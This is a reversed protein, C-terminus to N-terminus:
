ALVANDRIFEMIKENRVFQKLWPLGYIDEFMTFDSTDFHEIFFNTVELSTIIMGMDEAVAQMVLSFRAESEIDVQSSEIFDEVSEFGMIPLFDELTMGWQTAQEIHQQLLSQEHHRIVVEPISRVTVQTTVYDYIYDMIASSQLFTTIDELLEDVTTIGMSFAFNTAVFEDTLEPMIEAGAIYNITTVFLADQGALSEEFYDDPFPVEVYVVTGPMHGILQFLFDGIFEASGATVYMGDGFTNGGDFEVGNISGVFDINIRDGGAVERDMINEFTAHPILVSDIIEDISHQPVQHVSAPIPLAMYNFIEVHDLITIGQWLGNEDLGYSFFFGDGFDETTGAVAGVNDDQNGFVTDTVDEDNNSVNNAESQYNNYEDDENDVTDTNCGTIMLLVLLALVMFLIIKKSKM